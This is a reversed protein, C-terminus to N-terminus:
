PRKSTKKKLCFVAYSLRMLSQLESTHEASRPESATAGLMRRLASSRSMRRLSFDEVRFRAPAQVPCFRLSTVGYKFLVLARIWGTDDPDPLPIQADGDAGNAYSPYLCPAAVMGDSVQLRGTVWYWGAPM